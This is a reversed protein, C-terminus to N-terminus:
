KDTTLPLPDTNKVMGDEIYVGIKGTEDVMEVFLQYDNEVAMEEVLQWSDSDFKEGDKIFMVRLEPNIAMGMAMSVRIKEAHSSQNLNVGNFTVGDDNFGLGQIPLKANRIAAEKEEDIAQIQKSYGDSKIKADEYQKKMDLYALRERVKQNTTDLNEMNAQIAELDPDVLNAVEEAFAKGDILDEAIEQNLNELEKQLMSIQEKIENVKSKKATVLHRKEDLERRKKNNEHLTDSAIKFLQMHEKVDMEKDPLDENEHPNLGKMKAEYEKVQRNTITREEFAEKRRQDLETPDFGIINHFTKIQDKSGMKMFELPDFSLDGIFSNLLAQPSKIKTGDKAEVKLYSNSNSTWTRTVVYDNLDVTVEGRDAGQHIPETTKTLKVAADGGLALMLSDILSSKGNANKGTIRIVNGEPVFDVLKLRKVNEARIGVIRLM